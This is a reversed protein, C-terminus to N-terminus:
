AAVCLRSIAPLRPLDTARRIEIFVLGLIDNGANYTYAEDASRRTRRVGRRRRRRKSRAPSQAVAAGTDDFRKLSSMSASSGKRVLARLSMRSGTRSPVPRTEDVVAAAALSSTTATSRSSGTRKFFSPMPIRRTKGHGSATGPEAADGTQMALSPEIHVPEDDPESSASDFDEDDDEGSSGSESDTDEPAEMQTGQLDDIETKSGRRLPFTGVGETPAASLVRDAPDDSEDDRKLVDLVYNSLAVLREPTLDPSKSMAAELLSPPPGAVFGVKVLLEGSVEKRRSRQSSIPHWVPRNHPDDFGVPVRKARKGISWWDAM